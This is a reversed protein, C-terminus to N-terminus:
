FSQDSYETASESPKRCENKERLQQEKTVEKSQEHEKSVQESEDNIVEEPGPSRLSSIRGSFSIPPSFLSKSSCPRTLSTPSSLALPVRSYDQVANDGKVPTFLHESDPSLPPAEKEM